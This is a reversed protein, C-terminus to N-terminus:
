FKGLSGLSGLGGLTARGTSAASKAPRPPQYNASLGWFNAAMVAVSAPVGEHEAAELFDPLSMPVFNSTVAGNLYHKDATGFATVPEGIYSKGEMVDYATGFAPSLKSRIYRETVSARTGHFGKGDLPVHVGAQTTTSKTKLRALLTYLQSFSMSADLVVHNGYMAKGFTSKTPDTINVDAGTAKLLALVSAYGVVAQVYTRAIIKNASLSGGWLPRGVSLMVRSWAFRPAFFVTSLFESAARTKGMDARGTADNIATGFQLLEKDSPERGNARKFDRVLTDFTDARMLNLIASYGRGSARVGESVGGVIKGVVPVRNAANAAHDLLNTGLYNEERHRQDEFTGRGEEIDTFEIKAKKYLPYNERALINQQVDFAKLEGRVGFRKTSPISAELMAPINKIGLRPNALVLPGAQRGFGSEDFSTKLARGANLVGMAVSGVKQPLTLAKFAQKAVDMAVRQKYALLEKYGERTPKGSADTEIGALTKTIEDSRDPAIETLLKRTRQVPDDYNIRGAKADAVIKSMTAALEDGSGERKPLKADQLAEAVAMKEDNTLSVDGARLKDLARAGHPRAAISAKFKDVNGAGVRRALNVDLRKDPLANAATTQDKKTQAVAENFAKFAGEKGKDTVTVRNRAYADALPKLEAPTMDAGSHLKDLAAQSVPDSAVDHFFADSGAEGLGQKIRATFAEEPTPIARTSKAVANRYAKLSEAFGPPTFGPTGPNAPTVKRIQEYKTAAKMREADTATGDALRGFVEDGLHARLATVGRDGILRRFYGSLKDSPTSPTVRAAKQEDMLRDVDALAGTSPKRTPPTKTNARYAAELTGKQEATLEGAKGHILKDLITHTGDEDVIQDLFASVAKRSGLRNALQDTFVDGAVDRQKRVIDSAMATKTHAYLAMATADDLASGVDSKMAKAWDAFTRAGAEIHFMGLDILDKAEDIDFAGTEDKVIQKVLGKLGKGYEAEDAQRRARLRERIANAEEVTVGKNKEGYVKAARNQGKRPTGAKAPEPAAPTTVDAISPAETLKQRVRVTESPAYGEAPNRQENLGRGFEGAWHSVHPTVIDQADRAAKNAALLDDARSDGEKVAQQYDKFTRADEAAYHAQVNRVNDKFTSPNAPVGNEDVPLQGVPLDRLEDLQMNLEKGSKRREDWSVRQKKTGTREVSGKVAQQVDADPSVKGLNISAAMDPKAAKPKPSEASSGGANAPPETPPIAPQPPPSESPPEGEPPIDGRNKENLTPHEDTKKATDIARRLGEVDKQHSQIEGDTHVEVTFHDRSTLDHLRQLAKIQELTPPIETHIESGVGETTRPGDKLYVQARIIGTKRTLEGVALGPLHKGAGINRLVNSATIAHSHSPILHIEGDPTIFLSSLGSRHSKYPNDLIYSVVKTASGSVLAQRRMETTAADVLAPDATAGPAVELQQNGEIRGGHLPNGAGHGSTGQGNGPETISGPLNGPTATGSVHQGGSNPPENYGTNGEGTIAPKELSLTDVKLDANPVRGAFASPEQTTVIPSVPPGAFHGAEDRPQLASHHVDELPADAAPAGADPLTEDPAKAEGALRVEGGAMKQPPPLPQLADGRKIAVSQPDGSMDYTGAVPNIPTDTAGPRLTRLTNDAAGSSIGPAAIASNMNRIAYSAARAKTASLAVAKAHEAKGSARAVKSLAEQSAAYGDLTKAMVEPAMHVGGHILGAGMLIAAGAEIPKEEIVDATIQAAKKWDGQQIAELQGGPGMGAMGLNGQTDAQVSEQAKKNGALAIANDQIYQLSAPGAMVLGSVVNGAGPGITNVVKGVRSPVPDNAGLLGSIGTQQLAQGTAEGLSSAIAGGAVRVPNDQIAEKFAGGWYSKPVSPFVAHTTADTAAVRGAIQQPAEQGAVTWPSGDPRAPSGDPGFVQVAGSRTRVRTGAQGDSLIVPTRVGLGGGQKEFTAVHGTPDGANFPDEGRKSVYPQASAVATLQRKGFVQSAIYDVDEHTPQKDVDVTVPPGGNPDQITLKGM